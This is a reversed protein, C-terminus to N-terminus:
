MDTIKVFKELRDSVPKKTASEEAKRVLLTATKELESRLLLHTLTFTFEDGNEFKITKNESIAKMGNLITDDSLEYEEQLKKIAEVKQKRMENPGKFFSHVRAYLAEPKMREESQSEKESDAETDAKIYSSVNQCMENSAVNQCSESDWKKVEWWTTTETTGPKYHTETDILGADKLLKIVRSLTKTSILLWDAIVKQDCWFKGDVLKGQGAWYFQKRYLEKYVLAATVGFQKAFERSFSLSISNDM